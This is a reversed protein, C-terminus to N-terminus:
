APQGFLALAKLCAASHAEGLGPGIRQGGLALLYPVREAEAELVWTTLRSLRAEVTGNAREFDLVREQAQAESFRKVQPVGTKAFSKWHISHPADGPAYSKLGAFEEVGPASSVGLGGDGTASPPTPGPQAPAPYALTQLELEVWTWAHLLGLPYETAVAFRPAKLWGRKSAALPLRALTSSTAPIDVTAAPPLDPWGLSVTYRTAKSPNDVRVEFHATEGVFVPHSKGTRLQLNLLNAHTHHMSLLGVGALLFTLAFAMSNSYNMAGLLMVLLLLAYGYGFRTPVIYIRKRSVTVPGHQRLTRTAIWDRIRRRLSTLPNRGALSAAEPAIPPPLPDSRM